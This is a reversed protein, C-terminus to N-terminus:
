MKYKLYKKGMEINIISKPMILMAPFCDTEYIITFNNQIIAEDHKRAILFLSLYEPDLVLQFPFPKRIQTLFTEEKEQTFLWNQGEFETVSLCSRSSLSLSNLQIIAWQM